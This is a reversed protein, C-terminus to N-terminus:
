GDTDMAPQHERDQGCMGRASIAKWIVLTEACM